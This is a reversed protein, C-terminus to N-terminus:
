CQSQIEAELAAHLADRDVKTTQLARAAIGQEMAVVVQAMHASLLPESRDKMWQHLKQVAAQASVQATYLKPPAGTLSEGAAIDLNGALIGVSELADRHQEEIARDLGEPDLGFHTFARRATGDPSELAALLMHEAGPEAVGRARAMQEARSLMDALTKMDRGRQKLGQWWHKLM